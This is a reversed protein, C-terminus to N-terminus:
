ISENLKFGLEYDTWFLCLSLSNLILINFIRVWIFYNEIEDSNGYEWTSWKWFNISIERPFVESCFVMYKHKKNGLNTSQFALYYYNYELDKSSSVYM